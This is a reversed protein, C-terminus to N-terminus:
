IPLYDVVTGPAAAPAGPRRLLLADAEALVTLRASDQSPFPHIVPLGDGTGRELRARMYHERVGTAEIAVGLRAQRLDSETDALGQMARLAPVLFLLGAVYAAVPNGPLGLMLAGRMRGAMLPKGPQMAIRWFAREMGMEEAVPGVLDLDGVSAGGTTVVVDARAAQEFAARLSHADDRAIPLLRAEGGEAQVMAALAQSNSAVIQDPGPPTGPEVLENGTPILAVVPRRAVTVQALNMAALLALDAPRLRRPAALRFGTTFDGGAPRINDRATEPADLTVTGDGPRAQEQMVVMDAGAPVPAGTFIRVAEGPGVTGAFAKGAAAQGILRLVAGPRCDDRRCAYGDMASSPWPPQSLGAVADVALVRGGAERLAVTEVGLRRCLALVRARAEAVPIM